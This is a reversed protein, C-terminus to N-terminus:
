GHRISVFNGVAQALSAKRSHTDQSRNQTPIGTTPTTRGGGWQPRRRQAFHVEIVERREIRTLTIVAFAGIWWEYAEFGKHRILIVRTTGVPIIRTLVM